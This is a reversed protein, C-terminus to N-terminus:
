KIENILFVKTKKILHLYKILSLIITVKLLSLIYESLSFYMLNTIIM